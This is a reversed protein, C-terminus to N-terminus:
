ETYEPRWRWANAPAAGGLMMTAIPSIQWKLERSETASNAM